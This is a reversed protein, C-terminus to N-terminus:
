FYLNFDINIQFLHVNSFNLDSPTFIFQFLEVTELIGVKLVPYFLKRGLIKGGYSIRTLTVLLSDINSSM